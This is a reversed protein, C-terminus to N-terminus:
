RARKLPAPVHRMTEYILHVVYKAVPAFEDFEHRIETASQIFAAFTRRGDADKAEAIPRLLVEVLTRADKELGASQAATLAAARQRDFAVLRREFIARVLNTKSGFYYQVAVTNASGAAIGIQRLSVANVGHQGILKEAV